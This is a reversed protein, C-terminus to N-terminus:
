RPRQPRQHPATGADEAPTRTIEEFRTLIGQGTGVCVAAPSRHRGAQGRALCPRLGLSCKIMDETTRRRHGQRYTSASAAPHRREVARSLMPEKATGPEGVLMLGRNSVLTIICREVLTMAM